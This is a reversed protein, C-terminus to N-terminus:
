SRQFGIAFIPCFSRWSRNQIDNERFKVLQAVFSDLANQIRDIIANWLEPLSEDQNPAPVIFGDEEGVGGMKLSM